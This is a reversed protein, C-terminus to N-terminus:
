SFFEKLIEDFRFFTSSARADWETQLLDNGSGPLGTRGMRYLMRENVAGPDSLRMILFVAGKSKNIEGNKNYNLGVYSHFEFSLDALREVNWEQLEVTGDGVNIMAYGRGALIAM